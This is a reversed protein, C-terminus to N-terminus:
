PIQFFFHKGELAYTIFTPPKDGGGKKGRMIYTILILIIM